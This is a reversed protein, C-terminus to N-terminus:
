RRVGEPWVVDVPRELGRAFAVVDATGGWGRAPEGDWVAVLRDSRRVVERGGDMFAEDTPSANPLHIVKGARALLRRYEALGEADFTAEYGESPIVAVLDGGAALVGRAFIQDAGAALCSVGVLGPGAEGFLTRLRDQLLDVVSRPLVQHGSIGLKM